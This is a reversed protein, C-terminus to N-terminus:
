CPAFLQLTPVAEEDLYDLISPAGEVAAKDEPEKSDLVRLPNEELRRQGDASLGAKLPTLYDIM